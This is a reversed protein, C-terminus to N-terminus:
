RAESQRRFAVTLRQALKERQEYICGLQSELQVAMVSLDCYLNLVAEFSLGPHKAAGPEKTQPPESM